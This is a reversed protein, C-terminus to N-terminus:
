RINSVGQIDSLDAVIEVPETSKGNRYVVIRVRKREVLARFYFKVLILIMSM